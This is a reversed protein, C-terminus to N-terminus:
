RTLVALTVVQAEIRHVQDRTGVPSGLAATQTKRTCFAHHEIAIATGREDSRLVRGRGKLQLPCAGDLLMPWDISIDVKTGPRLTETSTFRVGGSSIDRIKGLIVRDGRLASCQIGLDLPYRNHSRRRNGLNQITPITNLLNEMNKEAVAIPLNGTKKLM